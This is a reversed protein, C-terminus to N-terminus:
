GLGCLSLDVYTSVLTFTTTGSTRDGSFYWYGAGNGLNGVALGGATYYIGIRDGAAVSLNVAYARFGVPVPGILQSAVAQFQNTTGTPRFIAVKVGSMASYAWLQVVAVIGSVLAPTQKVIYTYNPNMYSSQKVALSGIFLNGPTVTFDLDPTTYITTLGDSSLIRAIAKGAGSMGVPVTVHWGISTSEGAALTVPDVSSFVPQGGVTVDIATLVTVPSTGNNKARVAITAPQGALIIVPVPSLTIDVPSIAGVRM